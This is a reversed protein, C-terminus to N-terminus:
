VAETLTNAVAVLIFNSSSHAPHQSSGWWTLIHFFTSSMQVKPYLLWGTRQISSLSCSKLYSLLPSHQFFVHLSCLSPVRATLASCPRRLFESWVWEQSVKVLFTHTSVLGLNFFQRQLILQSQEVVVSIFYDEIWQVISFCRRLTMECVSGRPAAYM